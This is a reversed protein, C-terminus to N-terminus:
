LGGWRLKFATADSDLLMAYTVDMWVSRQDECDWKVKYPGTLNEKCWDDMEAALNFNKKESDYVRNYRIGFRHPYEEVWQYSLKM